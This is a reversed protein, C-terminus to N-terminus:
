GSSRRGGGDAAVPDAAAPVLEELLEILTAVPEEGPGLPVVLLGAEEKVLADPRLRRLRVRASAALTLPALRAVLGRRGPTGRGQGPRAPAASVERVGTRLCLARLRAVALLGEAPPPPPGFRDAWEARVDDVEAESGVAALRRYAELRLDERGVYAPPLHADSPVDITVEVPPRLPEGKMEAVAEAVLQVYLDYGVAAIHGSQDRGLLNGAGRIELDRMAIKFGAGLETQEGITRLREYAAETLVRDAPHLLYAYARQGARGVRGRLQHLQGLGLRDARDVVLTNVTPMDIGSEIITTCVLVDYRKEWFDLVVQELTGEDMQGHAVAVRAEPVLHRLRAAVAEINQVWNHVFFAQGERLLERRLAEVVAAEEFEGVYTLIPQRAAPPTNILSLDRIGTLAMELTRPIPSATLTLVDVGAAMQKISEKHTVGFRQEEDVVLLGLDKFEVDGALLRHTGIVVDVQGSALGAVVARAQAPTLFRSLMEVRVPFGTYREAFTQAHQQALLTTPVLVAAQKGDQIAKFVARVAVETKGFGVDGCVLRDMPVPEEMDRKVEEVAQLQDPTEVYPFAEEVERQWPTDPGFAHGESQLRRRYLAVLETAVEHVAARAKARTRQWESGGLRNLAPSEGGSYPTLADIQDSPLYLKDDGRYELLLYDRSAGNVTRTVMGAYRAVGHQRHVVYDGPALDDFFGDTPRARARAPRHSRRRGTMDAEALVAVKASAIVFGRELPAVVIRLGPLALDGGAEVVPVALGEEGLVAAMRGASGPGEACVTVSYGEAGLSALQGALQAREGHVPEFGRAVVAPTAPSDAVPVLSLVPAPCRALLRDFPVHLRPFAEGPDGGDPDPGAVNWTTALASALAREEDILEAARDRIRRPDVLAVRAGAGLLDPLVQEEPVLWPLWSEMGDFVQGAALREWQSRGWPEAGVLAAARDRLAPTPLVERCGFLEVRDLADLSRQDGPDFETLRDVEDGWLDVRVPLEATSPFVDVIGGRVALEGRHEVQYERRYGLGVLREVLGQQEVRQGRTVVVPAGSEEDPGLRQLLARVPAVVVGPRDPGHRLRWLLRLRAGMTPLEPSVREFPLTDWAPFLAVSGPPSFAELDHAIREADRVTPTVVLLPSREGLRAVGAAVYAVAADPVAVVATGASLAELMAPEHRLLPPLSQLSM